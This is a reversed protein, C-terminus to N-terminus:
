SLNTLPFFFYVYAYTSVIVTCTGVNARHLRLRREESGTWSAWVAAQFRTAPWGTRAPVSPRHHAPVRSVSCDGAPRPATYCCSPRQGVGQRWPERAWCLM